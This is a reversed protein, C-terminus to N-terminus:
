SGPPLKGKNQTACNTIAMGINRLNNASQANNASERVKQVAGVLLGMLIAIIAIVVLLEILTFAGRAKYNAKQKALSITCMTTTEKNKSTKVEQRNRLPIAQYFSCDPMKM